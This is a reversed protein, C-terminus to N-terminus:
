LNGAGHPLYGRGIAHEMPEEDVSELAVAELCKVCPDEPVWHNAEIFPEIGLSVVPSKGCYAVLGKKAPNVAHTQGAFRFWLADM